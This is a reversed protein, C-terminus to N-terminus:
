SKSSYVRHTLSEIAMWKVPVPTDSKKKYDYKYCDKALGFDCIKVVNDETLLINRAA